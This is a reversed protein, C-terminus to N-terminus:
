VDDMEKKNKLENTHTEEYYDRIGKQMQKTNIITDSKEYLRSEHSRHVLRAWGEVPRARM